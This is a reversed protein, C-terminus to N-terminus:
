QKKIIQIEKNAYWKGISIFKFPKHVKIAGYPCLYICRMCLGCQAKFCLKNNKLIINHNPCHKLCLQCKNCGETTYFSKGLWKAGWWELRGVFHALRAIFGGKPLSPQHNIINNVTQPAREKIRAIQRDVAKEKTRLAFNSPMVFMQYYFFDYGKRKLKKILLNPAANNLISREGAANIIFTKTQNGAPLKKIFDMVIKPMNFSHIPCLIGVADYNTPSAPLDQEILKITVKIKHKTFAKTLEEAIYRTTGTGSFLYILVQKM